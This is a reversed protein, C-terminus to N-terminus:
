KKKDADVRQGPVTRSKGGPQEQDQDTGPYGIPNSPSGPEDGSVFQRSGSPQVDDTSPRENDLATRRDSDPLSDVAANLQDWEHPNADHSNEVQSKAADILPGVDKGEQVLREINDLLKAVYGNRM